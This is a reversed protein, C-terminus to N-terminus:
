RAYESFAFYWVYRTVSGTAFREFQLVRTECLRVVECFAGSFL